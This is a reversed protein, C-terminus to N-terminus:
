ITRRPRYIWSHWDPYAISCFLLSCPFWLGTGLPPHDCNMMGYHTIDMVIRFVWSSADWLAPVGM